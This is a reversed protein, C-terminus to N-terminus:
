LRRPYVRAKEPDLSTGAADRGVSLLTRAVDVLLLNEEAEEFDMVAIVRPIAESEVLVNNEHFDGHIVGGPLGPRVPALNAAILRQAAQVWPADSRM